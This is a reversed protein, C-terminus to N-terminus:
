GSGALDRGRSRITLWAEFMGQTIRGISRARSGLDGENTKFRHLRM